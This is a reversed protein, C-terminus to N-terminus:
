RRFYPLLETRALELTGPLHHHATGAASTVTQAVAVDNAGVGLLVNANNAIAVNHTHAAEDATQGGSAIVGTYAANNFKLYQGTLNPTTFAGTTGDGKLYTTATGDCLQWATALSPAQVLGEIPNAGTEGTGWAWAAGGWILWHGFDTVYMRLGADSAGLAPAAAVFAALGSQVVAAFGYNTALWTNNGGAITNEYYLNRDTEHYLVGLAYNAAPYNVRNAHTDQIVSGIVVLPVWATGSYVMLQGNVTILTGTQNLPSAGPTNPPATTLTTILATQPQLLLGPLGNVNLQQAGGYALAKGVVAPSYQADLQLKTWSPRNILNQTQTVSDRVATWLDQVVRQVEPGVGPLRPLYSNPPNPPPIRPM